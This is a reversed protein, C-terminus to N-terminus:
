LLVTQCFLRGGRCTMRALLRLLNAIPICTVFPDLLQVQKNKAQCNCVKAELDMMQCRM